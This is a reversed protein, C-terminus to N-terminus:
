TVLTEADGFQASQHCFWRKDALCRKRGIERIRKPNLLTVSEGLGFAAPELRDTM